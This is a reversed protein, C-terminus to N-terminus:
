LTTNVQVGAARVGVASNMRFQSASTLALREGRRRSSRDLAPLVPPPGQVQPVGDLRPGRVQDHRVHHLDAPDGPTFRRVMWAFEKKPDAPDPDLKPADAL